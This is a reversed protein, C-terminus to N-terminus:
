SESGHARTPSADRTLAAFADRFAARARTLVSEAAKLGLGLRDAIVVVPLDDIYKWHLANGYHPPLADLAVHVLRGIERRALRREPGDDATRALSELAARVEPLEEVLADERERRLGRAHRIASIEHRCFTCLWTFLAAEGRYTALKTIARCLAAQVADEAVDGDHDLRVLAFRYLRPFYDSFFADFASEDGSLLRATLAKDSRAM